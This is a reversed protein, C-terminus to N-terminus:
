WGNVMMWLPNDLWMQHDCPVSASPVNVVRGGVRGHGSQSKPAGGTPKPGPAAGASILLMKSWPICLARYKWGLIENSYSPNNWHVHHFIGILIISYEFSCSPIHHYVICQYVVLLLGLPKDLRSVYIRGHFPPSFSSWGSKPVINPVSIMNNTILLLINHRLDSNQDLDIGGMEIGLISIIDGHNGMVDWFLDLQAEKRVSELQARESELTANLSGIETAHRDCTLIVPYSELIYPYLYIVYVYVFVFIFIMDVYTYLIYICTYIYLTYIYYTYHTYIYVCHWTYVYVGNRVRMHQRVHDALGNWARFDTGKPQSKPLSKWSKWLEQWKQGCRRHFNAAYPVPLVPSHFGYLYQWGRSRSPIM